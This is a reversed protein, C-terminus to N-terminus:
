YHHVFHSIVIGFTHWRPNTSNTFITRKAINLKLNSNRQWYDRKTVQKYFGFFFPQSRRYISFFSIIHGSELIPLRKERSKSLGFLVLHTADYLLLTFVYQINYTSLQQVQLSEVKWDRRCFNLLQWNTQIQMYTHLDIAPIPTSMKKNENKIINLESTQWSTTYESIYATYTNIHAKFIIQILYNSQPGISSDDLSYVYICTRTCTHIFIHTYVHIYSYTFILNQQVHNHPNSSSFEVPLSFLIVM